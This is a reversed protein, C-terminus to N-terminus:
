VMLNLVELICRGIVITSFRIYGNEKNVKARVSVDMATRNGYTADTSFTQDDFKTPESGQGNVEMEAMGEHIEDRRFTATRVIAGLVISSVFQL